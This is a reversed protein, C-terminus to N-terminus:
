ASSETLQNIILKNAPKILNGLRLMAKRLIKAPNSDNTFLREVINTGLYLPKCLMQHRRDYARLVIPSAIDGGTAIAKKIEGALMHGGRLGLNFGHATVPHMGVAADGLAAYRPAIFSEAYNLVLPYPHLDGIMDMRGVRHDFRAEIDRAFDETSMALLDDARDSPLTIVVSVRGNNLPLVALTRDYHFCEFATDEHPASHSMIGVICTRGLDKVSTPIGMMRRTPSQRGDAGILLRACLTSEDDLIIDVHGDFSQAGTIRRSTLFSINKHSKIKQYLATRIAQNTVMTGLYDTGAETHDFRLAYPADGDVVHARKMRCRAEAPILEFVELENLIRESLHTLAFERGDYSPASLANLPAPDVIAISLDTDALCAAFSLGAPGGGSIIIDFDFVQKRM